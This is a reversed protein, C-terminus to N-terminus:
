STFMMHLTKLFAICSANIANQFKGTLCASSTAQQWVGYCECAFRNSESNLGFSISPESRM